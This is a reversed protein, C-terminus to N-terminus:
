CVPRAYIFSELSPDNVNFLRLKDTGLQSYRTQWREQGRAVEQRRAAPCGWFLINTLLFMNRRSNEVRISVM